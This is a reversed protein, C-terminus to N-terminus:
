FLQSAESRVVADLELHSGRAFQECRGSFKTRRINEANANLRSYLRKLMLCLLAAVCLTLLAIRLNSANAVSIGVGSFLAVYM